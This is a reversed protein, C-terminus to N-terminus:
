AVERRLADELVGQDSIFVRADAPCRTRQVAEVLACPQLVSRGWRPTMRTSFAQEDRSDELKIAPQFAHSSISSPLAWTVLHTSYQCRPFPRNSHSPGKLSHHAFWNRRPHMRRTCVGHGHEITRLLMAGSSERVLGSIGIQDSIRQPVRKPPLQASASLRRLPLLSPQQWDLTSMM